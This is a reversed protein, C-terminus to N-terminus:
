SPFWSRFDDANNENIKLKSFSMKCVSNSVGWVNTVMSKSSIGTKHTTNASVSFFSFYFCSLFQVDTRPPIFSHFFTTKLRAALFLVKKYWSYLEKAIKIIRRRECNKKERKRRKLRSLSLSLKFCNQQPFKLTRLCRTSHRFYNEVKTRTFDTLLPSPSPPRATLFPTRIALFACLSFFPLHILPTKHNSLTECLFNSKM